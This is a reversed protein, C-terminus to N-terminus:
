VHCLGADSGSAGSGNASTAVDSHHGLGLLLKCRYGDSAHITVDDDCQMWWPGNLINHILAKPQRARWECPLPQATQARQVGRM